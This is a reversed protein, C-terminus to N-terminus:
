RQKRIQPTNLQELREPAIGDWGTRLRNEIRTRFDPVYLRDEPKYHPLFRADYQIGDDSGHWTRVYQETDGPARRVIFKGLFKGVPVLRGNSQLSLFGVLEEHESFVARGEVTTMHGGYAGGMSDIILEDPADPGKFVEKVTVRARTWVRGNDGVETWVQIVDGRIVYDSVDTMQEVTLPAFTTALAPSSPLAVAGSLGLALAFSINKFFRSPM